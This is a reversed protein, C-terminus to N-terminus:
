TIKILIAIHLYFSHRFGISRSMKLVHESIVQLWFMLEWRVRPIAATLRSSLILHSLIQKLKAQPRLGKYNSLNQNLVKWKIWRICNSKTWKLLKKFASGNTIGNGSEKDLWMIKKLKICVVCVKKVVINYNTFITKNTCWLCTSFSNYM